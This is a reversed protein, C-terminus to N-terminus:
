SRPHAPDAPGEWRSWGALLLAGAGLAAVLGATIPGLVPLQTVLVIAALGLAAAAFARPWSHVDFFAFQGLWLGVVAHAVFSLTAVLALAVAAVTLGGVLAVLSALGGLEVLTLLWTLAAVAVGALLLVLGGGLITAVGTGLSALPRRRVRSTSAHTPRRALWLLLGAVLLLSVYRRLITGFRAAVGAAEDRGIAVRETGAVTGDAAYRGVRGLVDGGVTGDNTVWGGLFALDGGVTAEPALRVRGGAVVADEALEGTVLLRGAVARVTGEITGPLRVSGAAALVDGNVTGRVVVEGGAAVLDGLVTGDVEIRGGSAYLDHEIVEDSGVVVVRGTRSGEVLSPSGSQGWAATAPIMLALLAVLATVLRERTHM